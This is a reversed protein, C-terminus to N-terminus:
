FRELRESLQSMHETNFIVTPTSAVTACRSEGSPSSQDSRSEAEVEDSVVLIIFSETM